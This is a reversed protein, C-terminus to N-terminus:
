FIYILIEFQTVFNSSETNKLNIIENDTSHKHDALSNKEALKAGGSKKIIYKPGCAFPNGV